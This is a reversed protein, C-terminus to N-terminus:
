VRIINAFEITAVFQDLRKDWVGCLHRVLMM